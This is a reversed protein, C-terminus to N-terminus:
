RAVGHAPRARADLESVARGSLEVKDIFGAAPSEAVRQGYEAADRSSTLVV